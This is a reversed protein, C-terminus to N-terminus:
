SELEPRHVFGIMCSDYFSAKPRLRTGYRKNSSRSLACVFGSVLKLMRKDKGETFQVM